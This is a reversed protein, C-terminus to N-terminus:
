PATLVYSTGIECQVRGASITSKGIPTTETVVSPHGDAGIFLARSSKGVKATARLVFKNAAAQVGCPTGDRPDELGPGTITGSPSPYLWSEDQGIRVFSEGLEDTKPDSEYILTGKPVRFVARGTKGKRLIGVLKGDRGRVTSTCAPGSITAAVALLVGTQGGRLVADITRDVPCVGPAANPDLLQQIEGPMAKNVRVTVGRATIALLKPDLKTGVDVVIWTNGREILEIGTLKVLERVLKRPDARRARISVNPPKKSVAYVLDARAVDAALRILDVVGVDYYDIDVAKGGAGRPPVVIPGHVAIVAADAPVPPDIRGEFTKQNALILFDGDHVFRVVHDTALKTVWVATPAGRGTPKPSFVPLKDPEVPGALAVSSMAVLALLAKV